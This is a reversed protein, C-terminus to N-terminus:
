LDYLSCSNFDLSPDFEVSALLYPRESSVGFSSLKNEMDSTTDIAQAQDSWNITFYTDLLPDDVTTPNQNEISSANSGGTQAPTIINTSTGIAQTTVQTTTTTPQSM